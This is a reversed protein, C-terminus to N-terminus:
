KRAALMAVAIPELEPWHLASAPEDITVEICGKALALCAHRIRRTNKFMTYSVYWAVGVTKMPESALDTPKDIASRADACTISHATTMVVGNVIGREPTVETYSLSDFSANGAIEYKGALVPVQIARKSPFEIRVTKAVAPAPTAARANIVPILRTMVPGVDALAKKSERRLVRIKNDREDITKELSKYSAGPDAELVALVAVLEGCYEEVKALSAAITALDAAYQTGGADVLAQAGARVKKVGDASKRCGTSEKTYDAALGKTKADARADAAVTWVAGVAGLIVAVKM